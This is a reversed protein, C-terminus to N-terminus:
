DKINYHEKLVKKRVERIEPESLVLCFLLQINKSTLLYLIFFQLFFLLTDDVLPSQFSRLTIVTITMRNIHDFQSIGLARMVRMIHTDAYESITIRQNINDFHDCKYFHIDLLSGECCAIKNLFFFKM